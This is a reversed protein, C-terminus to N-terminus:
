RKANTYLFISLEKLYHPIAAINQWRNKGQWLSSILLLHLPYRIAFNFFLHWYIRRYQTYITHTRLFDKFDRLAILAEARRALSHSTNNVHTIYNYLAEQCSSITPNCTLAKCVFAMDEASRCHPFIIANKQLFSRRFLKNWPAAVLRRDQLLTLATYHKAPIITHTATDSIETYGCIVIDAASEVAATHLHLLINEHVTDDADSFLVYEGQALALAANRAPGQGANSSLSLCSIHSFKQAMATCYRQTGDTSGDDVLIIEFNTFRQTQFAELCAPLTAISNYVPIIVTIASQTHM